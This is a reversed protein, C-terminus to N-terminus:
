SSASQGCSHFPMMAVAQTHATFALSPGSLCLPFIFHKHYVSLPTNAAYYHKTPETYVTGLEAERETFWSAWCQCFALDLWLITCSNLVSLWICDRASLVLFPLCKCSCVYLVRLYFSM